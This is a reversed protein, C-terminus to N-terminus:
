VTVKEMSPLVVRVAETTSPSSIGKGEATAEGEVALSNALSFLPKVKTPHASAVMAPVALLAVSTVSGAVM